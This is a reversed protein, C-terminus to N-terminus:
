YCLRCPTRINEVESKPIEKIESECQNLGRCNRHKHYTKATKGTCIYVTEIKNIIDSEKGYKFYYFLGIGLLLTFLLNLLCIIIMGKLTFYLKARKVKFEKKQSKRCKKKIIESRLKGFIRVLLFLAFIAAFSVAIYIWYSYIFIQCKDIFIEFSSKPILGNKKEFDKRDKLSVLRNIDKYYRYSEPVIKEFEEM